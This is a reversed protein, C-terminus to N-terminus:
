STPAGYTRRIWHALKEQTRADSRRGAHAMAATLEPQSRRWERYETVLTADDCRIASLFATVGRREPDSFPLAELTEEALAEAAISWWDAWKLDTSWDTNRLFSNTEGVTKGVRIGVFDALWAVADNFSCEQVTQVLAIADGGDGAVFDHWLGKKADVSVSLGDGGRWFAIGRGRRLPPGGLARWVERIDARAKIETTSAAAARSAARM